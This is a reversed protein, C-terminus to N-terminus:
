AISLARALPGWSCCTMAKSPRACFATSSARRSCWGPRSASRTRQSPPGCSSGNPPSPRPGWTPMPCGCRRGAPKRAWASPWSYPWPPTPAAVPLCWCGSSTVCASALPTLSRRPACSPWTARRMSSSPISIAAWCTNDERPTAAGICYVTAEIKRAFALVAQSISPSDITVPEDVVDRADPPIRLWEPRHRGGPGVYLLTVRGHRARALPAALALLVQLHDPGGIAALIRYPPAAPTEDHNPM